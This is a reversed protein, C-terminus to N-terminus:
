KEAYPGHAPLLVRGTSLRLARDANNCYWGPESVQSQEGWTQGNDTSRRMYVNRDTDSDWGVYSLLIEQESLRVLNPHKVNHTWENPQLVKRDRWTRGRDNSIKSAIQCSVEDTAGTQGKVAQPTDATSYYESWVLMLRETDLAFILQHDHRPHKPTWPCIVREFVPNMLPPNKGFSRGAAAFLPPATSVGAAIATQSLFSRRSLPPMM